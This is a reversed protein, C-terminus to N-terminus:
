PGDKDEGDLMFGARASVNKQYFDGDIMATEGKGECTTWRSTM